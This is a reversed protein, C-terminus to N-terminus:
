SKRFVLVDLYLLGVFDKPPKTAGSITFWCKQVSSNLQNVINYCIPAASAILIIEKTLGDLNFLNILIFGASLGVFMRVFVASFLPLFKEFKPNFYVGVSLMILPITLSGLDKLLIVAVQPMQFDLLNLALAMTAALIPPSFIVKKM